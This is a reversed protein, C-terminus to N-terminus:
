LPRSNKSRFSRRMFFTLASIALVILFLEAFTGASETVTKTTTETTTISAKTTTKTIISKSSQTSLITEKEQLSNNVCIQIVDANQRGLNTYSVAMVNIYGNESHNSNWVCSYPPIYDWSLLFGDIYFGVKEIGNPSESSATIYVINTVVSNNQPQTITVSPKPKEAVYYLSVSELQPSWIQYIDSEFFVQYRLYRGLGKISFPETFIKSYMFDEEKTTNSLGCRFRCTTNKPQEKMKWILNGTVNYIGGFFTLKSSFQGYRFFKNVPYIWTDGLLPVGISASGGFLIAKNSQEDYLLTHGSRKLPRSRPFVPTWTNESFTYVWTDDFAATGNRGAFLIIANNVSNYTLSHAFRASPEIISNLQTWNNTTLDYMWTESNTSGTWGGFLFIKKNSKDYVLPSSERGAPSFEPKNEKWTNTDLDYVWTEGNYLGTNGGYLVIKDHYADYVMSHGSRPSPSLSPNKLTWSNANLDYIWTENNRSGDFGGFLVFKKAQSHYCMSASVRASPHSSPSMNIWTNSPFDYVWTEDDRIGADAGGFLMAKQGEQDYAMGFKERPSPGPLTVEIWWNESIEEALSLDKNENLTVNTLFGDSFVEAKEFIVGSSEIDLNEDCSDQNTTKSPKKTVLSGSTEFFLMIALNGIIFCTIFISLIFKIETRNILM